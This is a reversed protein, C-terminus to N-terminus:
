NDDENPPYPRRGGHAPMDDPWVIGYKAAMLAFAQRAFETKNIKAATYIEIIAAEQNCSIRVNFQTTQEAM